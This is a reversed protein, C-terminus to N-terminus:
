IKNLKMKKNKFRPLLASPTSLIKNINKKRKVLAKQEKTLESRKKKAKLIQSRRKKRNRGVSQESRGGLNSFYIAALSKKVM